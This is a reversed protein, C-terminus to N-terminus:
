RDTETECPNRRSAHRYARKLTHVPLTGDEECSPVSRGTRGYAASLRQDRKLWTAVTSPDPPGPVRKPQVLTLLLRGVM